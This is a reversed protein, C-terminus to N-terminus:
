DAPTPMLMLVGCPAAFRTRLSPWMVATPSPTCIVESVALTVWVPPLMVLVPPSPMSRLPTVFPPVTTLLPLM